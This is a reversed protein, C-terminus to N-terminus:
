KIGRIHNIVEDENDYRVVRKEKINLTIEYHDKCYVVSVINWRQYETIMEYHFIIDGSLRIVGRTLQLRYKGDNTLLLEVLKVEMAERIRDVSKILFIM